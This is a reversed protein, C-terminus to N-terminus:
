SIDDCFNVLIKQKIAISADQLYAGGASCRIVVFANDDCGLCM